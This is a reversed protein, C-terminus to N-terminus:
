REITATKATLVKVTDNPHVIAVKAILVKVNDNISEQRQWCDRQETRFADVKHCIVGQQQKMGEIKTDILASCSAQREHCIEHFLTVVEKKSLRLELSLEKTMDKLKADVSEIKDNQKKLFYGLMGLIGTMGIAELLIHQLM